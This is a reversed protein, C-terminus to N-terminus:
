SLYMAAPDSEADMYAMGKLAYKLNPNNGMGKRLVLLIKGIRVLDEGSLVALSKLSDTLNENRFYANRAERFINELVTVLEEAGFIKQLSSPDATFYGGRVADGLSTALNLTEEWVEKQSLLIALEASGGAGPLVSALRQADPVQNKLIDALERNELPYFAIEFSRSLITPLVRSRDTALLVCCAGEPPEEILKLLANQGHVSVHEMGDILVGYRGTWSRRSMRGTLWRVTGEQDIDGVPITNKENPLLEVVDSFVGSEIQRCTVCTGCGGQVCFMAQFFRRAILKKGIGSVGHFLLCGPITGRDSLRRLYDIQRSHGLIGDTNM